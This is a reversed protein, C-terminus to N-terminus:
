CGDILRRRQLFGSKTLIKGLQLGAINSGAGDILGDRFYVAIKKTKGNWISCAPPAPRRRSTGSRKWCRTSETTM